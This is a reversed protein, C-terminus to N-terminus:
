FVLWEYIHIRIPSVINKFDTQRLHHMLQVLPIMTSQLLRIPHFERHAIQGLKKLTVRLQRIFPSLEAMDSTCGRMTNICNGDCPYIDKYGTCYACHNIKFLAKVCPYSWRHKRIDNVISKVLEFTESILRINNLSQIM